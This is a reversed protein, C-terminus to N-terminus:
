CFNDSSTNFLFLVNYHFNMKVMAQKSQGFVSLSREGSERVMRPDAASTRDAHLPPSPRLPVRGPRRSKRDGCLSLRPASPPARGQGGVGRHSTPRRTRERPEPSSSGRASVPGAGRCHTGSRSGQLPGRASPAPLVWCCGEKAGSEKGSNTREDSLNTGTRLIHRQRFCRSPFGLM